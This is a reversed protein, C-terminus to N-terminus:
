AISRSTDLHAGGGAFGLIRSCSPGMGTETSNSLRTQRMAEGGRWHKFSSEALGTNRDPWGRSRRRRRRGLLEGAVANDYSPYGRQIQFIFDTTRALDFTFVSGLVVKNISATQSHSNHIHQFGATRQHELGRERQRANVRQSTQSALCCPWPRM